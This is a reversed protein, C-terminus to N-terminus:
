QRLEAWQIARANRRTCHLRTSACCLVKTIIMLMDNYNHKCWLRVKTGHRPLRECFRSEPSSCDQLEVCM